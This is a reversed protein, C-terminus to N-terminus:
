HPMISSTLLFQADMGPLAFAEATLQAISFQPEHQQNAIAQLKQEALHYILPRTETSLQVLLDAAQNAFADRSAKAQVLEAAISQNQTQIASLIGLESSETYRALDSQTPAQPSQPQAQAPAIENLILDAEWDEYCDRDDLNCAKAAKTIRANTAQIGHQKLIQRIELKTPM